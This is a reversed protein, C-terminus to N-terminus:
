LSLCLDQLKLLNMFAHTQFRDKRDPYHLSKKLLYIITAVIKAYTFLPLYAHEESSLPRTLEYASLLTDKCEEDFIGKILNSLDLIFPEYSPNFDLIGSVSDNSFLINTHWLDGHILGKPLHSPYHEELFFIEQELVLFEKPIQHQIEYFNQSLQWIFPHTKIPKTFNEACKHLNGLVFGITEYEKLSWENKGKGKLHLSITAPKKNIEGISLIKAFPFGQTTFFSTAEQILPLNKQENFLTLVFSNRETILSFTSSEIGQAIRKIQRLNGLNHLKLFSDIEEESLRLSVEYPYTM